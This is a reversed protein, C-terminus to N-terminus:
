KSRCLSVWVITPSIFELGIGVVENDFAKAFVRDILRCRRIGLLFRGEKVM